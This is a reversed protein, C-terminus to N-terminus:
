RGSAGAPVQKQVAERLASLAAALQPDEAPELPRLVPRGLDQLLREAVERYEKPPEDDRLRAAITEEQEKSAPAAVDPVLGGQEGDAATNRHREIARGNPTYYRAITLKLRIDPRQWAFQRNVFGKGFTRTGVVVARRHDQLAGTLVESASASGGNVLVVLPLDPFRCQEPIADERQVVETGRRKATMINGAPLFRRAIALCEDLLGGGDHRLDLVLGRLGGRARRLEEIAATLQREAGEHFDALYVYGLGAEADLHRTWKVVPRAVAGREVTIALPQGGRVLGLRVEAGAPGRVRKVAEARRQALPLSALELDDVTVIRDGPRVGAREAPGGPFPYHVLIDQEHQLVLLGIGAYSGTTQEDWAKARDPPVYESYDDLRAMAGIARDLLQRPDTSEVYSASIEKLVLRLATAQPDPLGHTSRGFLTGFVFAAGTLSATAFMFWIPVRAEHQM